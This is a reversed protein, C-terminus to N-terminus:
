EPLVITCEISADSGSSNLKELRVNRFGQGNCATNPAFNTKVDGSKGLYYFSPTTKVIPSTQALNTLFVQPQIAVAQKPLCVVMLSKGVTVNSQAIRRIEHTLLKIVPDPGTNREFCYRIRRRLRTMETPTLNQGASIVNYSPAQPGITYNVHFRDQAEDLWSFDRGLANSVSCLMPSLFNEGRLRTWGIGVFAHRKVQRSYRMSQFGRSAQVAVYELAESLSETKANVLCRVLWEDTGYPGISALGTYAFSARNCFVVAKNAEDDELSLNKTIRRDSVQILYDGVAASIILTM